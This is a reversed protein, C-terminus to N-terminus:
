YGLLRPLFMSVPKVYAILGLVAVEVALFPLVVVSLREMSAKSISSAVNLLLGLPPTLMGLLIGVVMFLGYQIKEM